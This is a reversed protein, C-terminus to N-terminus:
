ISLGQVEKKSHMIDFVTKTGILATFLNIAVGLSLTVAFGKIPGTGFQFLV